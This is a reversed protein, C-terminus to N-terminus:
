KSEYKARQEKLQAQIDKIQEESTKKNKSLKDAMQQNSKVQQTLKQERKKLEISAEEPLLDFRKQRQSFATDLQQNQKKLLNITKEAEPNSLPSVLGLAALLLAQEFLCSEAVQAGKLIAMAKAYNQPSVEEIYKIEEEIRKIKKLQKKAEKGILTFHHMEKGTDGSPSKRVGNSCVKNHFHKYAVPSLGNAKLAKNYANFQEIDWSAYKAIHDAFRIKRYDHENIQPTQIARLKQNIADVEAKDFTYAPLIDDPMDKASTTMKKLYEEQYWHNLRRIVDANEEKQDALIAEIKNQTNKKRKEAAAQIKKSKEAELQELTEKFKKKEEKEAKKVEQYWLDNPTSNNTIHRYPLKFDKPHIPLLDPEKELKKESQQSATNLEEPELQPLIKMPKEAQATSTHSASSSQCTEIMKKDIKFYHDKRNKKIHVFCCHKQNELKEVENQMAIFFDQQIVFPEPHDVDNSTLLFSADSNKVLSQPIDTPLPNTIWDVSEPNVLWAINNISTQKAYFEGYPQASYVSSTYSLFFIFFFSFSFRNRDM